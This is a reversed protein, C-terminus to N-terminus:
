NALVKQSSGKCGARPLARSPLSLLVQKELFNKEVV